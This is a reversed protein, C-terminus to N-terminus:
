KRVTGPEVDEPRDVLLHVYDQSFTGLTGEITRTSTRTSIGWKDCTECYYRHLYNRYNRQRTGNPRLRM